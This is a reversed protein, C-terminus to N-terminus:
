ANKTNASLATALTGSLQVPSWQVGPKILQAVTRQGLVALFSALAESLLPKLACVPGASCPDAQADFCGVVNFNPETNRVVDAVNIQDAPRALRLGGHKGRTSHVFGSLGLNHVVKVLHNRSIGYYTAIEGITAPQDAKLALYILVRLSYDTYLTLQM